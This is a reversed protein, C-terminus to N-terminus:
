EHQNQPLYFRHFDRVYMIQACFLLNLVAIYLWLLFLPIIVLSGYILDYNKFFHTAYFVFVMKSLSFLISAVMGTVLVSSYRAHQGPIFYYVGCFLASSLIFNLGIIVYHEFDTLYSMSLLFIRLYVEAYVILAGLIIFVTYLGLSYIIKRPRLIHLMKNLHTEVSMILNYATIVLFVFGFWPLHTTHRLFVKFQKYLVGGTQPLFHVFVYNVSSNIIKNSIPSWYSISAIALAFPIFSLLFSFSLSNVAMFGESRYFNLMMKCAFNVAAQIPAPVYRRIIRLLCRVLVKSM